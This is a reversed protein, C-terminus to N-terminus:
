AEIHVPTKERPEDEVVEEAAQIQKRRPSPPPPAALQFARAQAKAKPLPGPQDRNQLFSHMDAITRWVELLKQVYAEVNADGAYETLLYTIEDYELAASNVVSTCFIDSPRMM